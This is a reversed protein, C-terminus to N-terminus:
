NYIEKPNVHCLEEIFKAIKSTLFDFYKKGKEPTAASPNGVGTDESIETWNRPTWALKSKLGDLSFDRAKGSGAEELPLVLNPFCHQMISTEMEGAHDGPSDFFEQCEPLKFWDIVGIFIEPYQPQLERVISRFDNGGHSNLIVIKYIQQRSLSWLLDNLIAMQTSPKSHLCFPMDIQGPNQVGLPIAPLVMVKCNNEWALEAAKDAIVESQLTDTGYPLHLNHPETAGWPIVAVEYTIKQVQKWNCQNLIWPKIKDSKNM